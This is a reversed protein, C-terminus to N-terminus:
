VSTHLYRNIEDEYEFLWLILLCSPIAHNKITLVSTRNITPRLYLIYKLFIIGIRAKLVNVCECVREQGMYSTM